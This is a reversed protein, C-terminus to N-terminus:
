RVFSAIPHIAAIGYRNAVTPMIRHARQTSWLPLRMALSATAQVNPATPRTSGIKELESTEAAVPNLRASIPTVEARAIKQVMGVRKRVPTAAAPPGAKM